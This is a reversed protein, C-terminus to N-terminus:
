LGGLLTSTQADLPPRDTVMGQQAAMVVPLLGRLLADQEKPHM